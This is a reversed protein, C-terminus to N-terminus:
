QQNENPITGNQSNDHFQARLRKSEKYDFPIKTKYQTQEFDETSKQVFTENQAPINNKRDQIM